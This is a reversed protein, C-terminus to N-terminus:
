GKRTAARKATQNSRVAAWRRKQAKSRNRFERRRAAELLKPNKCGRGPACWLRRGDYYCQVVVDRAFRRKGCCECYVLRGGPTSCEWPPDFTRDIYNTYPQLAATYIHINM